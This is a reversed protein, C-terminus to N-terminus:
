RPQTPLSASAPPPRPPGRQWPQHDRTPQSARSRLPLFCSRPCRSSSTWHVRTIQAIKTQVAIKKRKKNSGHLFFVVDENYQIGMNHVAPHTWYAVAIRHHLCVQGVAWLLRRRGRQGGTPDASPLPPWGHSGSVSATAVLPLRVLSNLWWQRFRRSGV